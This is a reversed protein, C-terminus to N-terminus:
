YLGLRAKALEDRLLVIAKDKEEIIARAQM